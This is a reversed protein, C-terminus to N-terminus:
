FIVEVEDAILNLKNNREEFRASVCLIIGYKIFNKLKKYLNTFIVCEYDIKDDSLTFFAMEEGSKTKIVKYNKLYCIFKPNRKDKIESLRILGRRKIESQYLVFIDYKINIGLCKKEFDALESLEYEDNKIILDPNHRDFSSNIDGKSIMQKKPMNFCDLASSYILSYLGKDSIIDMCRLKFDDYDKFIGKEREQVIKSSVSNGIGKIATFPLIISDKDYIFTNISKNINPCELKINYNSCMKYYQITKAEDGIVSSLLEVMYYKAYNTKLYAMQYALIAYAVSHSRNFGYDAFKVIYDYINNADNELHNNSIAKKVFKERQAQLVGLKKKSVARRLIDAEGLTYNAYKSAIQMIQEQYVIIGYTPKLIDILDNSFYQFPENNKRSIYTDIQDMPGPRYLALLAIVDEIDNPKLKLLFKRMGDSELQFVGLTDASSLLKFTKPDDLPIKNIDFNPEDKKIMKLVDYILSLNKIGLFDMKLLGLDELDSAEYESMYCDDIGMEVATYCTLDDSSLIMGAAHTGTQRPLGELKSSIVLLKDIKSDERIKIFYPTEILERLSTDYNVKKIIENVIVNDMKLIRAIDRIAMKGQFCSFTVIHCVHNLGYKEVVYKIVESRKDDPFDIDIDPMSIREKNLFREFLLNYKIPDVNTIGLVYAVLSGAASGRGPGVLIDHTKAYKVYDWVILFYDDYKMNSIVNLEMELRDIYEKIIKGNLRKKLGMYCLEKLYDKSSLNNPTNYKPLTRSVKPIEFSIKGVMEDLNSFVESYLEYKLKLDDKNPLSYDIMDNEIKLSSIARYYNFAELDKYDLYLTKNVPVLKVNFQKALDIIDKYIPELGIYFYKFTNKYTKIVNKAEEFLQNTLNQYIENDLSAVVMIDDSKLDDITLLKKNSALKLLFQYGKLNIAYVLLETTNRSLSEVCAKYGIIPKISKSICKKYFKYAGHMNTDNLALFDYQYLSAKDVMDDIRLMSNLFSYESQCDFFGIM